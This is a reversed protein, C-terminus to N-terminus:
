CSYNAFDSATRLLTRFKLFSADSELFGGKIGYHVTYNGKGPVDWRRTKRKYFLTFSRFALPDQLKHMLFTKFHYRVAPSLAGQAREALTYDLPAAMFELQNDIDLEQKGAPLTALFADLGLDRLFLLSIFENRNQAKMILELYIRGAFLLASSLIDFLTLSDPQIQHALNLCNMGGVVSM